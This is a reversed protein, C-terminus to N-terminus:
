TISSRSPDSRQHSSFIHLRLFIWVFFQMSPFIDPRVFARRFYEGVFFHTVFFQAVFIHILRFFHQRFFTRRLFAPRFVTMSDQYIFRKRQLRRM